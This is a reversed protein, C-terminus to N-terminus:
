CGGDHGGNHGGDRWIEPWLDCTLPGGAPIEPDRLMPMIDPRPAYTADDGAWRTVIARRRATPSANGPAHHMTLGHHVTCDGPALDWQLIRHRSREAEIDPVPPLRPTYRGDGIFAEPQYEAGWRHSGAVFEVAGTEATVPDLALWLTSVMDGEVPWYPRDHHWPTESPSGPEKILWQDFFINVRGAGMCRAAIEAAPSEFVLARCDANHTWAFHEHFFRGPESRADAMELAMKGPRALCDDAAQRMRAVWDADFLGRLCVVGDARFAGIEDDTLPRLPERNM